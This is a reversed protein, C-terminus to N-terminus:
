SFNYIIFGTVKVKQKSLTTPSFKSARAATVASSKLLPHGSVATASIVNGDEDIVVQVKVEGKAGVTKAPVPYNPKVLNRAKGNVVGGSVMPPPKVEKKIVPPPEEIKDKETKEVPESNNAIGPGAGSKNGTGRGIPAGSNVPDSNFKGITFTSNPRAKLNSPMVSVSNPIERPTEDMRLVNHTRSPLKNQTNQVTNEIQQKPEIVPEPKVEFPVPAVLTSIELSDAALAINKNFLSFVLSVTLITVLVIATSFMFGGFKKNEKKHNRSEILNDLM